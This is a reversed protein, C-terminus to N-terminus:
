LHGERFYELLKSIGQFGMDCDMILTKIKKNEYVEEFNNGRINYWAGMFCIYKTTLEPSLQLVWRNGIKRENFLAYLIKFKECLNRVHKGSDNQLLHMTEELLQFKDANRYVAYDFVEYTMFIVMMFYLFQYQVMLESRPSDHIDELMRELAQAGEKQYLVNRVSQEKTVSWEEIFAGVQMHVYKPNIYDIVHLVIPAYFIDNIWDSYMDKIEAFYKSQVTKSETQDKGYAFELFEMLFRLRDSKDLVLLEGTQLESTYVPPLPIGKLLAELVERTVKSRRKGAISRKKYFILIGSQYRRFAEDVDYKRTDFSIKSNKYMNYGGIVGLVGDLRNCFSGAGYPVEM